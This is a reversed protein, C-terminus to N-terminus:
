IHDLKKLTCNLSKRQKSNEDDTQNKDKKQIQLLIKFCFFNFYMNFLSIKVQFILFFLM